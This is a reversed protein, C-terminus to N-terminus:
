PHSPAPCDAETASKDCITGYLVIPGRTVDVAAGEDLVGALPMSTTLSTSVTCDGGLSTDDIGFAQVWTSGAVIGNIGLFDNNNLVMEDPAGGNCGDTTVFDPLAGEPLFEAWQDAFGDFRLMGPPAPRNTTFSHTFTVTVDFSDADTTADRPVKGGCDIRCLHGVVTTLCQICRQPDTCNGPLDPYVAHIVEIGNFGIHTTVATSFVCSSAAGQQSTAIGGGGTASAVADNKIVINAATIVNGQGTGSLRYTAFPTEGGATTTPCSDSTRGCGWGGSGEAHAGLGCTVSDLAEGQGFGSYGFVCTCVTIIGVIM